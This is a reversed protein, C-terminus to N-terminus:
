LHKLFPSLMIVPAQDILFSAVFLMLDGEGREEISGM